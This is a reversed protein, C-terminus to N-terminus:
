KVFGNRMPIYAQAYIPTGDKPSEVIYDYEKTTEDFPFNEMRDLLKSNPTGEPVFNGAADIAVFKYNNSDDQYQAKWEVKVKGTPEEDFLDVAKTVLSAIPENNGVPNGLYNMLSHLSSTPRGKGVQSSVYANLQYNNYNDDENDTDDILLCTLHAAVYAKGNKDKAPTVGIFEMPGRTTNLNFKKEMNRKIKAPWIGAKPPRPAVSADATADKVHVIEDLDFDMSANNEKNEGNNTDLDFTNQLTEESTM